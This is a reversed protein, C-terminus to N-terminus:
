KEEKEEISTKTKIEKRANKKLHENVRQAIACCFSEKNKLGRM